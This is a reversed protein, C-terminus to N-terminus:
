LSLHFLTETNKTTIHVVNEKPNGKIHALADITIGIDSPESMRNLIRLFIPSDTEVLIQDLPANNLVARMGKSYVAAPTASVYYGSDLIIKLYHLPGDYWHFVAKNPGHEKLISLSDKYASRSHISVPLSFEKAIKLLKIYINQQEERAEKSKASPYSYDLGIEGLAICKSVNERIHKITDSINTNPIDGPHLGLCPIVYGPYQTALKLTKKNSELNAGMALIANISAKKARKIVDTTDDIIDLHVHSDVLKM